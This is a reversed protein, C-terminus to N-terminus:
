CSLFTEFKKRFSKGQYLWNLLMDALNKTMKEEKESTEALAPQDTSPLEDEKKKEYVISEEEDENSSDEQIPIDEFPISHESPPMQMGLKSIEAEVTSMIETKMMEFEDRLALLIQKVMVASPEFNRGFDDKGHGISLSDGSQGYRNDFTSSSHKKGTASSDKNSSSSVISRGSYSQSSTKEMVKTAASFTAKKPGSTSVPVGNQVGSTAHQKSSGIVPKPTTM